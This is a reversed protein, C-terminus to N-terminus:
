SQEFVMSIWEGSLHRCAFHGENVREFICFKDTFHNWTSSLGAAVDNRGENIALDSLLRIASGVV